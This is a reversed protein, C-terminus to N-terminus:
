IGKLCVHQSRLVTYCTEGLDVPMSPDGDVGLQKKVVQKLCVESSFSPFKFTDRTNKHHQM